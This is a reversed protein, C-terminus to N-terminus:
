DRQDDYFEIVGFRQRMYGLRKRDNNMIAGAVGGGPIAYSGSWSYGLASQTEQQMPETDVSQRMARIVVDATVLKLLSAYSESQAAHEDLDWSYRFADVRLADSVLPLLVQIRSQEDAAYAKGSIAIVDNLDAFPNM